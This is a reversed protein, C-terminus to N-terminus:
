ITYFGGDKYYIKIQGSSNMVFGFDYVAHLTEGTEDVKWIGNFIRSDFGEM